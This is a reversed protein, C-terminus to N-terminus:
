YLETIFSVNLPLFLSVLYYYSGTSDYSDDCKITIDNDIKKVSSFFAMAIKDQKVNGETM